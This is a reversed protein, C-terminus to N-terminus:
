GLSKLMKVAKSVVEDIVGLTCVDLATAFDIQESRVFLIEEAEANRELKVTRSRKDPLDIDLNFDEWGERKAGEILDKLRKRWTDGTIQGKVRIQMSETVPEFLGECDVFDPKAKRVLKIFKLEGTNLANSLTESPLGTPKFVTYTDETTKKTRQFSYEYKKM